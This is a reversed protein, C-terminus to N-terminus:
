DDEPAIWQQGATRTTWHLAYIARAAHIGWHSGFSFRLEWLADQPVDSYAAIGDKLGRYIDTLDGALSGIVPEDKKDWPDFVSRYEDLDGLKAGLRERLAWVEEGSLEPAKATEDAVEIEPLAAAAAYLRALSDAIRWLFQGRGLEESAEILSCYDHAEELFREISEAAGM